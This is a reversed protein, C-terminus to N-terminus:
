ILCENVSGMFQDVGTLSHVGYVLYLHFECYIILRAEPDDKLIRFSEASAVDDCFGDDQLQLKSEHKIYTQLPLVHWAHLTEGDATSISFSTM